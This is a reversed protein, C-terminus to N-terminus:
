LSMIHAQHPTEEAPKEEAALAEEAPKEEAAPAEEAPKEKAAPAEEAPKEEAVPATPQTPTEFWKRRLYSEVRVIETDDLVYDFVLLESIYGKFQIGSTEPGGIRDMSGGQVEFAEKCKLTAVRWNRGARCGSFPQWEGGDLRYQVEREKEVGSDGQFPGRNKSGGFIFCQLPDLGDSEGHPIDPTEFCHLSIITGVKSLQPRMEMSHRESFFISPVENFQGGESGGWPHLMKKVPCLLEKKTGTCFSSQYVTLGNMNRGPIRSRWTELMDTQITEPKGERSFTMTRDIRDWKASTQETMPRVESDYAANYADKEAETLPSYYPVLRSPDPDKADLWLALGHLALGPIVCSPVLAIPFREDISCGFRTSMKSVVSGSLFELSTELWVEQTVEQLLADRDDLSWLQQALGVRVQKPKARLLSFVEFLVTLSCKEVGFDVYALTDNDVIAKALELPDISNLSSFTLKRLVRNDGGICGFIKSQQHAAIPGVTDYAITDRKNLLTLFPASLGLPALLIELVYSVLSMYAARADGRLQHIKHCISLMSPLMSMLLVTEFNGGTHNPHEPMYRVRVFMYVQFASQLFGELFTELIPSLRELTGLYVADRPSVWPYLALLYVDVFIMGVLLLMPAIVTFFCGDVGAAKRRGVSTNSRGIHRARSLEAIPLLKHFLFLKLLVPIVFLGLSIKFWTPDIEQDISLTVQLDSCQDYVCMVRTYFIEMAQPIPQNMRGFLNLLSPKSNKTRPLRRYHEEFWGAGEADEKFNINYEEERRSRHDIFDSGEVGVLAGSLRNLFHM